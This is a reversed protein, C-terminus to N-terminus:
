RRSFEHSEGSCYIGTGYARSSFYMILFSCDFNLHQLKENTMVSMLDDGTLANL